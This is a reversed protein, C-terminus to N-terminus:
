MVFMLIMCPFLSPSSWGYSRLCWVFDVRRTKVGGPNRLVSGVVEDLMGIAFTAGSGGALLLVREYTTLDLSCGGYPGDFMVQVPVPVPAKGESSSSPGLDPSVRIREEQVGAYQNLAATWDGAVRAGLLIGRLCSRARTRRRRKLSRGRRSRRMWLWSKERKRRKPHLVRIGIRM